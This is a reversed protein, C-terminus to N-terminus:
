NVCHLGYFDKLLKWMTKYGLCRGRGSIEKLIASIITEIPSEPGRRYLSMRKLLRKLQRFSIKIGHICILAALIEKYKYGRCFYHRILDLEVQCIQTRQEGVPLM